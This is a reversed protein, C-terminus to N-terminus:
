KRLLAILRYIYYRIGNQRISIVVKSMLDGVEVQKDQSLGAWMQTSFDTMFCYNWWEGSYPCNVSAWPKRKDAYHIIRPNRYGDIASKIGYVHIIQMFRKHDRLDYKTMVNYSCDLHLIRPYAIVNLIDQDQSPYENKIMNIAKETLKEDRLIKLNMLVVGANIYSEISPLGIANCHDQGSDPNCIYVPARVGALINDGLETGYLESLDRLVIVDTDLYICRDYPLINAVFLRYYTPSTIHKITLKVDSLIDGMVVFYVLSDYRSVLDRYQSVMYDSFVSPVMLFFVYDTEPKKNELISLITIYMQKSYNDDAALLIPIRHLITPKVDIVGDSYYTIICNNKIDNKKEFAFEHKSLLIKKFRLYEGNNYCQSPDDMNFGIENAYEARIFLELYRNTLSDTTDIMVLAIHICYNYLSNSFCNMREDGHIFKQLERVVDYFDMWYRSRNLSTQNEGANIRKVAFVDNMISIRKSSALATFVFLTDNFFHTNQFEISREKIFSARFLKDWPWGNCFQFLYDCYDTPSINTKNDILKNKLAWDNNKIEGTIQNISKSRFIVIDSENEKICAYARELMEPEFYDDSDLFSLYEGNSIAMGRNRAAGAGSNNQTIVTIRSDCSRYQELLQLSNDTSGDDVCIIEIDKLTQNLVSDLMEGIYLESNYVPIIVSVAVM